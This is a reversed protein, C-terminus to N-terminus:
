WLARVGNGNDDEQVAGPTTTDQGPTPTTTDQVPQAGPATENEDITTTDDVTGPQTVGPTTGPQTVGPTTGPQTVGPTTGPQTVGPTTGPQTVGPTAQAVNAPNLNIEAKAPITFLASVGAVGIVTAINTFLNKTNKISMFSVEKIYFKLLQKIKQANLRLAKVFLLL